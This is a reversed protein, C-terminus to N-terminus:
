TTPPPAPGTRLSYGCLALAGISASGAWLDRQQEGRDTRAAPQVRIRTKNCGAHLRSRIRADNALWVTFSM